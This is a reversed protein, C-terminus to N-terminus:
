LPTHQEMEKRGKEVLPKVAPGNIVQGENTFRSGHCPCDWSYEATNWTLLCGMHTCVASVAQLTGTEDRSVGIKEGEYDMVKGEGKQLASVDAPSAKLIRHLLGEISHLGVQLLNRAGTLPKVRLPSYLSAWANEQGQILDTLIKASVISTTM